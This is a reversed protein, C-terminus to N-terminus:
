TISTFHPLSPPPLLASPTVAPEVCVQTAACSTQGAECEAAAAPVRLLIECQGGLSEIERSVHRSTGRLRVFRPSTKASRTKSHKGAPSRSRILRHPCSDHPSSLRCSAGSLGPPAPALCAPLLDTLGRQFIDSCLSQMPPLFNHPLM